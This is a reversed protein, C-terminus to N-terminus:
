EKWIEDLFRPELGKLKLMGRLYKRVETEWGPPRSLAHMRICTAIDAHQDLTFHSAKTVNSYGGDRILNAFDVFWIVCWVDDQAPGAFLFNVAERIGWALDAAMGDPSEDREARGIAEVLESELGRSRYLDRLKERVVAGRISPSYTRVIDELERRIHSAQKPMLPVCATYGGRHAQTILEHVLGLAYRFDHTRGMEQVLFNTRERLAYAIHGLISGSTVTGEM